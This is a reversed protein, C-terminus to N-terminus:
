KDAGKSEPASSVRICHGRIAASANDYWGKSEAYRVMGEFRTQWDADADKEALKAIVNTPVWVHEEHGLFGAESLQLQSLSDGVVLIVQFSKMDNPNNLQLIASGSRFDAVVDM